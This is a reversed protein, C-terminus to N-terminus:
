HRLGAPVLYIEGLTCIYPTAFQLKVSFNIGFIPSTHPHNQQMECSHLLDLWISELWSEWVDGLELLLTLQYDSTLWELGRFLKTMAIIIPLFFCSKDKEFTAVKCPLM